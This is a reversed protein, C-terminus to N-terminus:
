RVSRGLEDLLNQFSGPSQPTTAENGALSAARTTWNELDAPEVRMSDVGGNSTELLSAQPSIQFLGAGEPLGAHPNEVKFSEPYNTGEVDVPTGFAIIRTGVPAAHEFDAATPARFAPDNERGEPTPGESGLFVEFYAVERQSEDTIKAAQEVKVALVAHRTVGSEDRISRGDSWSLITGSVAIDRVAIDDTLSASQAYDYTTTGRLFSADVEGRTSGAASVSSDDTRTEATPGAEIGCGSLVLAAAATAAWGHIKKM